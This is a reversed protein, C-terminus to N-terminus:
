EEPYCNRLAEENAKGCFPSPLEYEDAITAAIRQLSESNEPYEVGDKELETREDAGMEWLDWLIQAMTPRQGIWQNERIREIVDDPPPSVPREDTVGPYGGSGVTTEM